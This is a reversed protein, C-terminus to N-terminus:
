SKPFLASFAAGGLLSEGLDYRGEHQRIIEASIALGLGRGGTKRNRSSDIRYFREWVKGREEEPVGPGSDHVSFGSHGNFFAPRVEIQSNDPTYKMANELFNVLVQRVRMRDAKLLIENENWEPVANLIKNEKKAKLRYTEITEIILENLNFPQSELPKEGGELDSLLKLEDILRILLDTEESLSGIRKADALYVGDKIMELTGAILAVPTRLEHATDSIIQKKWQRNKELAQTMKNFRHSLLTIEDAGSLQVEGGYDGAEVKETALTLTKLPRTIQRIFLLTLLIVPILLIIITVLLSRNFSQLFVESAVGLNEHVMTGSYVYGVITEDNRIPIGEGLRKKWDSKLQGRPFTNQVINNESDTILYFPLNDRMVNKWRNMNLKKPPSPINETAPLIAEGLDMGNSLAMGNSPAMGDAPDIVKPFAFPIVLTAVVSDLDQEEKLMSQLMLALQRAAGRDRSESLQQVGEKVFRPVLIALVITNVALVLIFLALLQAWLPRKVIKKSM